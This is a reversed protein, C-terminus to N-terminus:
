RSAHVVARWPRYIPTRLVLVLAGAVVFAGNALLATPAGVLAALTGVELHGVPATGISFVWIGVARGRQDEPVVLQIMMQELADFASACAGIVLMIATAVLLTSAASFALIALGYVVYV